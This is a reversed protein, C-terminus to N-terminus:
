AFAFAFAVVAAVVLVGVVILAKLARAWPAPDETGVSAAIAM